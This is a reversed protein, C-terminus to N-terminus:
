RSYTTKDRDCEDSHDGGKRHNLRGSIAFFTIALGLAFFVWGAIKSWESILNMAMEDTFPSMYLLYELVVKHIIAGLIASLIVGIILWALIWWSVKRSNKAEKPEPESEDDYPEVSYYVGLWDLHDCVKQGFGETSARVEIDMIANGVVARAVEQKWRDSDDEPIGFKTEEGNDDEYWVSLCLYGSEDEKTLNDYIYKDVYKKVREFFDMNDVLMEYDYDFNVDAM